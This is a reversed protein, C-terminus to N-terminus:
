VEGRELAAWVEAAKTRAIQAHRDIADGRIQVRRADFAAMGLQLAQGQPCRKFQSWLAEALQEASMYDELAQRHAEQAALLREAMVETAAEAAAEVAAVYRPHQQMYRAEAGGRAAAEVKVAYQAEAVRQAAQQRKAHDPQPADGKTGATAWENLAAADQAVMANFAAIADAEAHQAGQLNRAEDALRELQEREVERIHIAERLRDTATPVAELKKATAM